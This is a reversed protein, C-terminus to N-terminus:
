EKSKFLTLSISIRVTRSISRGYNVINYGFSRLDLNKLYPGTIHLASSRITLSQNATQILQYEEEGESDIM